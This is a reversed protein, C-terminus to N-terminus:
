FRTLEYGNSQSGPTKIFSEFCANYFAKFGRWQIKIRCTLHEGGLNFGPRWLETNFARTQDAIHPGRTWEILAHSAVVNGGILGNYNRKNPVHKSWIRHDARGGSRRGGIVIWREEDRWTVLMIFATHILGVRFYFLLITPNIVGSSRLTRIGERYVLPQIGRVIIYYLYILIYFAGRLLQAPGRPEAVHGQTGCRM